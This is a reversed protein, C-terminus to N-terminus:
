PYIKNFFGPKLIEGVRYGTIVSYATSVDQIKGHNDVITLPFPSNKVIDDKIDLIMRSWKLLPLLIATNHINKTLINKIESNIREILLAHPITSYSVQEIDDTRLIDALKYSDSLGIKQEPSLETGNMGIRVQIKGGDPHDFEKRYWFFAPKVIVEEGNEKTYKEVIVNDM